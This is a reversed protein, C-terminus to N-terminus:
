EGWPDYKARRTRGQLSGETGAGPRFLGLRRLSAWEYGGLVVHDLLEIGLLDGAEAARRTVEVDEGSPEVSRSPHNHVLIMACANAAVAERFCEALRVPVSNLGGQYVLVTRIVRNKTDLLLTRLQEQPLSHMEPGLYMAVDAPSSVAPGRSSEEILSIEYTRALASLLRLNERALCVLESGEPPLMSMQCPLSM